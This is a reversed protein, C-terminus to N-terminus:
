GLGKLGVVRMGKINQTAMGHTEHPFEQFCSVVVDGSVHRSEGRASIDDAKDRAPM